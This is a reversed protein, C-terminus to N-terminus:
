KIIVNADEDRYRPVLATAEAVASSRVIDQQQQVSMQGCAAASLLLFSLM